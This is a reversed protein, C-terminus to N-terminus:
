DPRCVVAPLEEVMCFGVKSNRVFAAPCLKRTAMMGRINWQREPHHIGQNAALSNASAAIDKCKKLLTTVYGDQEHFKQVIQMIYRPSFAAHPDKVEIVWISSKESDICVLDVEGRLKEIGYAHRKHPKINRVVKFGSVELAHVAAHELDRNLSQRYDDLTDVVRGKGEEDERKLVEKPWPLRGDDLYNFVM